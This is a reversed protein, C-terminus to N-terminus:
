ILTDPYSQSAMLSKCFYMKNDLVIEEALPIDQSYKYVTHEKVNSDYEQGETDFTM